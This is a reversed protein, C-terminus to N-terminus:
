REFGTSGICKSATSLPQSHRQARVRVFRSRVVVLAGADEDDVVQGSFSSTKVVTSSLRPCSSTQAREPASASRSIRLFSNAATRRSTFMGSMSPKSVAASIRLYLREAFV